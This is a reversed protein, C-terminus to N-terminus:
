VCMLGKYKFYFAKFNHFINKGTVISVRPSFLLYFVWSHTM